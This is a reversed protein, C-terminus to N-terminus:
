KQYLILLILLFIGIALITWFIGSAREERKSKRIRSRPLDSEKLIMTQKKDRELPKEQSEEEIPEQALNSVVTTKDFVIPAKKKELPPTYFQQQLAPIAATKEAKDKNKKIKELRKEKLM